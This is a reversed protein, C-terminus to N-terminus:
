AIEKYPLHRAPLVEPMQKCNGYCPGNTEM